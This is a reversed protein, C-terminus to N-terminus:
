KAAQEHHTDIVRASVEVDERIEVRMGERQWSWARGYSGMRGPSRTLHYLEDAERETLIHGRPLTVKLVAGHEDAGFELRTDAGFSDRLTSLTDAAPLSIALLTPIM